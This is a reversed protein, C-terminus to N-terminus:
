ITAYSISQRRQTRAMRSNRRVRLTRSELREAVIEMEQGVLVAYDVKADHLYRALDLHYDDSKDGLEKMAGLVAIRRGSTANATAMTAAMSAPNANYSEDILLATGGVKSTIGRM